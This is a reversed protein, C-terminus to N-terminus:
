KCNKFIEKISTIGSVPKLLYPPIRGKIGYKGNDSHNTHTLVSNSTHGSNAFLGVISATTTCYRLLDPACIFNLTGTNGKDFPNVIATTTAHPDDLNEGTELANFGDYEWIYTTENENKVVTNWVNNGQKCNGPHYDPNYEVAPNSNIYADTNSNAFCYDLNQIRNLPVNITKLPVEKTEITGDAIEKDIRYV